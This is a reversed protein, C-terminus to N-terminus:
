FRGGDKWAVETTQTGDMNEPADALRNLYPTTSGCGAKTTANTVTPEKKDRVKHM